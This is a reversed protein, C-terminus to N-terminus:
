NKKLMDEINDEACFINDEKGQLSMNLSNLSNFIDGLYVVTCLWKFNNFNTIYKTVGTSNNLFFCELKM